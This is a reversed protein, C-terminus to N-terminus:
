AGGEAKAIAAHVRPFAGIKDWAAVERLAELLADRQALLELEKKIGEDIFVKAPRKMEVTRGMSEADLGECYNWCATLRRADAVEYDAVVAVLEGSADRLEPSAYQTVLTLRGPTHRANM